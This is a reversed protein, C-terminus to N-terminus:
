LPWYQVNNTQFHSELGRIGRYGLLRPHNSTDGWDRADMKLGRGRPTVKTQVGGRPLRGLASGEELSPRFWDWLSNLSAGSFPFPPRPNQKDGGKQRERRKVKSEWGGM